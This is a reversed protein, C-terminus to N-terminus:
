NLSMNGKTINLKLTSSAYIVICLLFELSGLFLNTLSEIFGVETYYICWFNILREMSYIGKVNYASSLGWYWATLQVACRRQATLKVNDKTYVENAPRLVSPINRILRAVYVRQPSHHFATLWWSSRISFQEQLHLFHHSRSSTIMLYSAVYQVCM